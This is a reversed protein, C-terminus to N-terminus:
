IPEGPEVVERALIDADIILCGLDRFMRSV